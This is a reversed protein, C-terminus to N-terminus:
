REPPNTNGTPQALHCAVRHGGEIELLPPALQTCRPEAVPCRPHFTCGSPPDVPSPMEGTVAPPTPAGPRASPTSALLARTYPHRPTRYLEAASAEEVIKGLYMVAVRDCVHQVLRLDHAILLYALGLREQLEVLLNVIQAQVPPDLATVPEDAVIFRPSCAIARAIGVRQRQGGSFEHPYRSAASRELGVRELLEAVREDRESRSRVLKHIALPEGVATGVRLRPNLSGFPDQFIIQFERRMKRLTAPALGLLDVGDFRLEGADADILRVLMRGLTSKGSGSEGVLGVTESVHVDLDVGAVAHLPLGRSGLLSTRREFSKRLGRAEVLPRRM